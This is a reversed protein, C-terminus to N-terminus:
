YYKMLVEDFKIDFKKLTKETPKTGKKNYKYINDKRNKSYDNILNNKSTDTESASSLLENLIITADIGCEKDKIFEKINEVDKFYNISATSVSHRMKKSLKEKDKYAPNDNHEWTIYMSRMMQFNITPLRTIERLRSLLANDNYPKKTQENEFLYTRPFDNFSQIIYDNFEPLDIPIISLNKNDKYNKYNSAKDNNVIIFVKNNEKDIYIYNDKENNDKLNTIFLASTYFSTRMPPQLVVFCLLLQKLHSNYLQKEKSFNLNNLINLFYDKTKFNDEEKEDLKNEKTENDIKQNLDFGKQAYTKILEDNPANIDLFRSVMFYMGKKTSEGWKVNGDIINLLNSKMDMIYSDKNINVNSLTKVLYNFLMTKKQEHQKSWDKSM